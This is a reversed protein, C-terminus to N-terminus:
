SPSRETDPVNKNGASPRGSRGRPALRVGCVVVSVLGLAGAVTVVLHAPLFEAAAGAAAFGLGQGIMLGAMTITLARGRLEEPTADLVRQDLGMAHTFGFGCAVLLLTAPVLAPAFAFFLLPVFMLSGLPLM